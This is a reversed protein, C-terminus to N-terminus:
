AKLKHIRAYAGAGFLVSAYRLVPIRQRNAEHMIPAKGYFICAYVPMFGRDCKNVEFSELNFHSFM